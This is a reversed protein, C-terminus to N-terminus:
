KFVDNLMDDIESDTAIGINSEGNSTSNTTFVVWKDSGNLVYQKGKSDRAVSGARCPTSQSLDGKGSMKSTPLIEVDDYSDIYFLCYRTTHNRSLETAAM